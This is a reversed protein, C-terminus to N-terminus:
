PIHIRWGARWCSSSRSGAASSPAWDATRYDVRDNMDFLRTVQEHNLHAIGERSCLRDFFRRSYDTRCCNIAIIDPDGKVMGLFQRTPIIDVGHYKEGGRCKFDDVVALAWGEDRTARIFVEAFTKTGLLIFRAQRGKRALIERAQGPICFHPDRRYLELM